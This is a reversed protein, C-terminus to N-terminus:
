EGKYRFEDWEKHSMGFGALWHNYYHTDGYELHSGRRVYFMKRIARVDKTHDIEDQQVSRHHSVPDSIGYFKGLSFIAM